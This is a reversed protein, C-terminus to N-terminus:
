PLNIIATLGRHNSGMPNPLTSLEAFQFPARVLIHDIPVGLTGAEVPWTAPEINNIQMGSTRLFATFDTNWAASNFDGAMIAGGSTSALIEALNRLESSQIPGYEPKTLHVAYIPIIGAGTNIQLRYARRKTRASLLLKETEVIELKSLVLLDCRKQEECGISHPYVKKLTDMHPSLPRAELIIAIDADSEILSNAIKRGNNHNSSLINFSIIRIEEGSFNVDHPAIHPGLSLAVQAFMAAVVMAFAIARVWLKALLFGLAIVLLIAAMHLRMNSLITIAPTQIPVFAIGLGVTLIAGILTAPESLARMLKM